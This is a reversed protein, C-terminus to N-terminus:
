RMSATFGGDVIMSHGTVYSAPDSCLWLVAEAAEEPRGIRGMPAMRAYREAVEQRTQPNGGSVRDMMSELMPTQFAGAVLANIRIGVRAYELAASKTLAIVGAKAAAYLAAQPVGGLGNVSSTNVIAGGRPQQALMQRIEHRMSLWVSKLNLAMSRDFQEETFEATAAFPEEVAAANNFAYDLRGFAAVTKEVLSQVQDPQAVDTPVFLARGGAAEIERVVQRGREQGRAALAVKAGRRAFALAAARGIGSSGGTILVVKDQV